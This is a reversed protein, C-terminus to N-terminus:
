LMSDDSVFTETSENEYKLRTLTDDSFDVAVHAAQKM